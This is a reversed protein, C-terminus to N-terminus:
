PNRHPFGFLALVQLGKRREAIFERDLKNFFKRGPLKIDLQPCLEQTKRM